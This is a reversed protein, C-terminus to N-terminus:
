AVEEKLGLVEEGVDEILENLLEEVEKHKIPTTYDVGRFEPIDVSYHHRDYAWTFVDEVVSEAYEMDTFRGLKSISGSNFYGLCETAGNLAHSCEALLQCLTNLERFKEVKDVIDLM